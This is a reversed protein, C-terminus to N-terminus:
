VFLMEIHGSENTRYQCGEIENWLKEFRRADHLCCPLDIQTHSTLEKIKPKLPIGMVFMCPLPFCYSSDTNHFSCFVTDIDDNKKCSRIRAITRELFSNSDYSGLHKGMTGYFNLFIFKSTVLIPVPPDRSTQVRSSPLNGAWGSDVLGNEVYPTTICWGPFAHFLQCLETQHEWWSWHKFEVACRLDSPVIKMVTKLKNVNRVSWCFSPPYEILICGLKGQLHLTKCGGRQKKGDWFFDWVDKINKITKSHSLLKPASIIFKFNHNNKVSNLWGQYTEVKPQGFFTSKITISDFKSAYFELRDREAMGLPYFKGDECEPYTYGSTAIYLGFEKKQTTRSPTIKKPSKKHPAAM